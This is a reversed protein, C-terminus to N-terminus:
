LLSSFSRRLHFWGLIPDMSLPLNARNHSNTDAYTPSQVSAAYNCNWRNVAFQRRATVTVVAPLPLQPYTNASIHVVPSNSPFKMVMCVDDPVASFMMPSQFNGYDNLFERENRAPLDNTVLRLASSRLPHPEMLLQSPTQGFSRIQNEIAERTVPDAISDLEVNGEYTLYYFVNTARIAEPGTFFWESVNSCGRVSNPLSKHTSNHSTFLCFTKYFTLRPSVTQRERCKWM